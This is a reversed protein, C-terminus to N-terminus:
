VKEQQTDDQNARRLVVNMSVEEQLIGQFVGEHVTTYGIDYVKEQVGSVSFRM